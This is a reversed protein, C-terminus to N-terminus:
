PVSVPRDRTFGNCALSVCAWQLGKALVSEPASVLASVLVRVLVNAPVSAPVSMPVSMPVSVLVGVPMRVPWDCALENCALRVCVWQLGM